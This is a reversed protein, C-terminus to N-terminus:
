LKKFDELIREFRWFSKLNEYFESLNKFIIFVKM